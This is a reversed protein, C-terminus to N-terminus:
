RPASGPGSRVWSWGSSAAASSSWTTPCGPRTGARRDFVRVAERRDRSRRRSHRRCGFRHRHRHEPRDRAHEKGGKCRHRRGQGQRRDDRHRFARRDQEEEDPLRRRRCQVERDGDKHAMMAELDLKPTGVEVGLAPSHTRLRSLCRPPMCCRRPLFAASISAPAAWRRAKEVVATKLGLQAAKIACVYGGPGTGIVVLDYAM